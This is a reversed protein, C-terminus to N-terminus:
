FKVLEFDPNREEEYELHAGKIEQIHEINYNTHTEIIERVEIRDEAEIFLSKCDERRPAELKDEQYFVKFIM